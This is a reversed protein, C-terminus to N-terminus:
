EFLVEVTSRGVPTPPRPGINPLPGSSQNGEPTSSKSAPSDEKTYQLHNSSTQLAKLRKERIDLEDTTDLLGTDDRRRKKPQVVETPLASPPVPRAAAKQQYDHLMSNPAAQVKSHSPKPYATSFNGSKEKSPFLKRAMVEKKFPTLKSKPASQTTAAPLRRRKPPEPLLGEGSEYVGAEWGKAVAPASKPKKTPEKAFVKSSRPMKIVDGERKLGNPLKVGILEVKRSTNQAQKAKLNALTTKMAEAEKEIDKRSQDYLRSYLEFWGESDDPQQQKIQWNPIDRDMLMKWIEADHGCIQPSNLEIQHLQEPNDVRRLLSRVTSYTADGVDYILRINRICANRALHLLSLAPM